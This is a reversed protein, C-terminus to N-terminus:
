QLITLECHHITELTCCLLESICLYLYTSLSGEESELAGQVVLLGFWDTRFSILESYENSPSFRFRFSWYKPWSTYFVSDNPFVKNSPFISPLLLLPCCLVLHNSPMVSKISMLKLLSQSKTFSLSAHCAITWPTAFLQFHSLSQVSNSM